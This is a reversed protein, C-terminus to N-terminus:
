ANITLNLEKLLTDRYTKDKTVRAVDDIRGLSLLKDILRGLLSFGEERGEEQGEKRGKEEGISIGLEYQERKIDELFM